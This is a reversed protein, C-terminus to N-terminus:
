FIEKLFREKDGEQLKALRKNMLELYMDEQTQYSIITKSVDEKQEAAQTALIDIKSFLQNDRIFTQTQELFYYSMFVVAFVSAVKAMQYWSRQQRRDEVRDIRAMINMQMKRMRLDDTQTNSSYAERMMDKFNNNM